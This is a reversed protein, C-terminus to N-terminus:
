PPVRSPEVDDNFMAVPGPDTKPFVFVFGHFPRTLVVGVFTMSSGLAVPVVTYPTSRYMSYLDDDSPLNSDILM